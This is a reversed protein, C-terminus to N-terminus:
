AKIENAQKGQERALLVKLGEHVRRADSASLWELREIGTQRKVFGLLRKPNDAWGLQKALDRIRWLQKKSVGSPLKTKRGALTDIVRTAQEETLQSIHEQGTVTQVLAHVQDSDMGLEKASAWLHRLQARTIQSM